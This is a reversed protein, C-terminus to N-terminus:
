RRKLNAADISHDLVVWARTCTSSLPLSGGGVKREAWRAGGSGYSYGWTNGNSFNDEWSSGLGAGSLGWVSTLVGGELIVRCGRFFLGISRGYGDGLLLAFVVVIGDHHPGLM